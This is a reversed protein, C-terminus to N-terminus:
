CSLSHAAVSLLSIYLNVYAVSPDKITIQLPRLLAESVVARGTMHAQNIEGQSRLAKNGTIRRLRKAREYLIKDASVILAVAHALRVEDRAPPLLELDPRHLRLHAPDV